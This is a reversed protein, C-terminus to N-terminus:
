AYTRVRHAMFADHAASTNAPKEYVARLAGSKYKLLFRAPRERGTMECMVTDTKLPIIRVEDQEQGEM